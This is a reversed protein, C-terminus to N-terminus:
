IITTSPIVPTEELEKGAHRHYGKKEYPKIYQLRRLTMGPGYHQLKWYGRVSFGDRIIERLYSSDYHKIPFNLDSLFKVGEIKIWQPHSEGGITIVEPQAFQKIINLLIIITSNLTHAVKAQKIDYHYGKIYILKEKSLPNFFKSHGVFHLGSFAAMLLTQEGNDNFIDYFIGAKNILLCGSCPELDCFLQDINEYFLKNANMILPASITQLEYPKRNIERMWADVYRGLEDQHLIIKDWKNNFILNVFPYNRNTFKM